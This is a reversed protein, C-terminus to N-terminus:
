QIIIRWEGLSYCKCPVVFLPIKLRLAFSSWTIMINIVKLQAWRCFMFILINLHWYLRSLEFIIQNSLSICRWLVFFSVISPYLYGLVILHSKNNMVFSRCLVINYTVYYETYMVFM